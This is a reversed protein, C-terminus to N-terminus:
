RKVLKSKKQLSGLRRDFEDRIVKEVVKNDKGDRRVETMWKPREILSQYFDKKWEESFSDTTSTEDASSNADM